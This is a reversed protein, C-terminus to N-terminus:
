MKLVYKSETNLHVDPCSPDVTGSGRSSTAVSHSSQSGIRVVKAAAKEGIPLEMRQQLRQGRSLKKKSNQRASSTVPAMMLSEVFEDPMGETNAMIVSRSESSKCTSLEFSRQQLITPAM